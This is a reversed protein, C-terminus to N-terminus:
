YLVKSYKNNHESIYDNQIMWNISKQFMQNDLSFINIERKILNFLEDYTKDEYKIFHNIWSSTTYRRNIQLEELNTDINSIINNELNNFYVKIIDTELINESLILMEKNKILIGSIILSNIINTKYIESYNKFFVENKIGNISFENMYNFLELIMLQIPFLKININNYTIEIEGYHPLWLLKRKKEYIIDYYNNYNKLYSDLTNQIYLKNNDFEVYGNDWNINWNSYSTTILTMNYNSLLTFKNMIEMSAEIDIIIKTLNRTLKNGFIITLEAIIVKENDIITNLSLIRNILQTKYNNIFIDIDKMNRLYTIINKVFNIDISIYINILDLIKDLIIKNSFIILIYPEILGHKNSIIIVNLFNYLEEYSLKEIDKNYKSLFTSYETKVKNTVVRIVEKNPIINGLKYLENKIVKINYTFKDKLLLVIFKDYIINTFPDIIKSKDHNNLFNYFNSIKYIYDVLRNFDIYDKNIINVNIYPINEILLIGIFKLFWIYNESKHINILAINELLNKIIHQKSLDMVNLENKLFTIIIQDSFIIDHFLLQGECNILKFLNNIYMNKNHYTSILKNLGHEINFNNNKILSKIRNKINSLYYKLKSNIMDKYLISKNNIIYNHILEPHYINSDSELYNDIYNNLIMDRKNTDIDFTHIINFKDTLM